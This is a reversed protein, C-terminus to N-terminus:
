GPRMPLVVIQVRDRLDLKSLIRGVHSKVTAESLVLRTATEANSLGRAVELLVGHERATLTGLLTQERPTPAGAAPLRHSDQSLLRRTVRPSVVADGAAVARVASLLEAPQSDKLLFGSADACHRTSM